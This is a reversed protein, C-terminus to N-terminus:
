HSGLPSGFRRSWLTEIVRQASALAEGECRLMALGQQNGSSQQLELRVELSRAAFCDLAFRAEAAANEAPFAPLKSCFRLIRDAAATDLAM